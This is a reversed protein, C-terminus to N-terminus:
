GPWTVWPLGAARGPVSLPGAPGVPQAPRPCRARTGKRWAGRSPSPLQPFSSPGCCGPRLSGALVDRPLRSRRPRPFPRASASLPHPRAPGASSRRPEPYRVAERPFAQRPTAPSCRQEAGARGGRERCGRSPVADPIQLLSSVQLYFRM